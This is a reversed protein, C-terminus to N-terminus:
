RWQWSALPAAATLVARPSSDSEIEYGGWQYLSQGRVGCLAAAFGPDAESSDPLVAVLDALFRARSLEVGVIRGGPLDARYVLGLGDERFWPVWGSRMTPASRRRSEQREFVLAGRDLLPQLRAAFAVESRSSGKGAAPRQLRGDAGLLFAGHVLPHRSLARFREPTEADVLLELIKQERGQVFAQIRRNQEGLRAEYLQRVRTDAAHTEAQLMRAGLWALVATPLAVLLFLWCALRTSRM